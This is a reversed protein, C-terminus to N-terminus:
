EVECNISKKGTNNKIGVFEEPEITNNGISEGGNECVDKMGSNSPFFAMDGLATDNHKEKPVTDGGDGDAWKESPEKAEDSGNVLKSMLYECIKM